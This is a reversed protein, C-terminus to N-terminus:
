QKVSRWNAVADGTADGPKMDKIWYYLPLGKYAWQMTGEDRKVLSFDGSPKASEEAFLPPWNTACKGNCVSKGDGAKDKDFTYLTMQSPGVLMGNKFQAPAANPGSACASVLLAAVLSTAVMISRTKM